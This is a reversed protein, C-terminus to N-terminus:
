GFAKAIAHAIAGAGKVWVDDRDSRWDSRENTLFGMELLLCLPRTDRIIGLRGFRTATDPKVGRGPLGTIRTYEMQFLKAKAQAYDSGAFFFTTCGSASTPGSDMHLEIVADGDKSRANIWKVRADIGLGVPVFVLAVNPISLKKLEVAVKEVYKFETEGNHAAGLDMPGIKYARAKNHGMSVFVTRM